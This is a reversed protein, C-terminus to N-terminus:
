RRLNSMIFSVSIEIAFRLIIYNFLVIILNISLSFNFAGNEGTEREREACV